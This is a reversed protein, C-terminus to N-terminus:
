NDELTCGKGVHAAATCTLVGGEPPVVFTRHLTAARGRGQRDSSCVGCDFSPGKGTGTTVYFGDGEWGALTGPHFDLNDPPAPDAASLSACLLLALAPPM